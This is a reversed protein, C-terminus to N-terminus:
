ESGIEMVLRPSEIPMSGRNVLVRGIYEAERTSVSHKFESDVQAHDLHSAIQIKISDNSKLFWILTDYVKENNRYCPYVSCTGGYPDVILEIERKSEVKFISDSWNFTDTQASGETPWFVILIVLNLQPFYKM